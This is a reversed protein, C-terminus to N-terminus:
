GRGRGADRAEQALVLDQWIWTPEFGPPQPRGGPEARVLERLLTVADRRKQDVRGGPLWAELAALEYPPLGIERATGIIPPYTRDPYHMAKALGILDAATTRGIVEAAVAARLTARINVLPESAAAYGSEAPAHFLAVEDDDEIEGDRYWRYIEGVGVMGHVDLEAARLAGMSSSGYVAVGCSMAWLIEKHWVAPVREYYGDIIGIKRTGDRVARFVSGMRAPPRYDAVLLERAEELPLTPGVFVVVDGNVGGM